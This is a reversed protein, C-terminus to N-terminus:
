AVLVFSCLAAEVENNPFHDALVAFQDVQFVVMQLGVFGALRLRLGYTPHKESILLPLDHARRHTDTRDLNEIPGQAVTELGVVGEEAMEPKDVVSDSDQVRFRRGCGFDANEY